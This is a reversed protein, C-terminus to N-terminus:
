KKNEYTMCLVSTQSFGQDFCARALVWRDLTQELKEDDSLVLASNADSIGFEKVLGREALRWIRNPILFVGSQVVLFCVVWQYYSTDMGDSTQQTEDHVQLKLYLFHNLV